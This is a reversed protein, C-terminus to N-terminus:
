LYYQIITTNIRISNIYLEEFNVKVKIFSIIQM